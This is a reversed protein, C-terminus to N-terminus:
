TKKFYFIVIRQAYRDGEQLVQQDRRRKRTNEPTLRLEQQM